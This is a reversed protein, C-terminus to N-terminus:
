NISFIVLFLEFCDFSILIFSSLSLSFFITINVDLPPPTMMTMVTRDSFRFTSFRPSKDSHCYQWNTYSPLFHFSLTIYSFLLSPFRPASYPSPSSSSFLSLSLSKSQHHVYNDVQFFEFPLKPFLFKLDQRELTSAAM